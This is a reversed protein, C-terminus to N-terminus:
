EPSPQYTSLYRQIASVPATSDLTIEDHVKTLSDIVALQKSIHKEKIAVKKLTTDAAAKNKKASDLTSNALKVVAKAQKDTLVKPNTDLKDKVQGAIYCARLICLLSILGLLIVIKLINKKLWTLLNSVYNM